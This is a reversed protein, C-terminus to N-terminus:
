LDVGPSTFATPSSSIASYSAISRAMMFPRAASASISWAHTRMVASRGLGVALASAARSVASSSKFTARSSRARARVASVSNVCPLSCGHHSNRRVLPRRMEHYVCGRLVPTVEIKVQATDERVVFKVIKQDAAPEVIRARLNTKRVTAAIRRMAADIAVLSEERPQVPLYTLDIDVSLRPLNRVFLNIATGGKLAFCVETSVAPLIKLLLAVQRQYIDSFAM